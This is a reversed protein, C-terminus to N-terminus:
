RRSRTKERKFTLRLTWTYRPKLGLRDLVADRVYWVILGVISVSLMQAPHATTFHQIPDLVWDCHSGCHTRFVESGKSPDFPLSVIM